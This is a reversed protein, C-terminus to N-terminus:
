IRRWQRGAPRRDVEAQGVTADGALFQLNTRTIASHIMRIVAPTQEQSQQAKGSLEVPM